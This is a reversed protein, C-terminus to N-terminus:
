LGVGCSAKEFRAASNLLCFKLSATGPNCVIRGDADDSNLAQLFAVLAHMPGTGGPRGGQRRHNVVQGGQKAEKEEQAQCYGAVKFVVKSERVYRLHLFFSLFFSYNLLQFVPKFLPAAKETSRCGIMKFFTSDALPFIRHRAGGARV